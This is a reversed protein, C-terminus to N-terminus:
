PVLSSTLLVKCRATRTLSGNVSYRRTAAMYEVDPFVSTLEMSLLLHQKQQDSKYLAIRQEQASEFRELLLFSLTKKQTGFSHYHRRRHELLIIIDEETNWFFSLTKKQTGFSHYHRRRHELLIIIDEETNWFFSLTKKQTGFSHYHRRRHELLITIDEETHQKELQLM